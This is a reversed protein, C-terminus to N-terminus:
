PESLSGAVRKPAIALSKSRRYQKATPTSGPCRWPRWRKIKSPAHGIPTGALWRPRLRCRVTMRDDIPVRGRVRAPRAIRLSECTVQAGLSSPQNPGPRRPRGQSTPGLAVGLTGGRRLARPVPRRHVVLCQVPVSRGCRSLHVGDRANCVRVHGVDLAGVVLGIPVSLTRFGGRLPCERVRGGAVTGPGARRLDAAVWPLPRSRRTRRDSAGDWPGARPQAGCRDSAAGAARARGDPPRSVCVGPEDRADTGCGRLRLRLGLERARTRTIRAVVLVAVSGLLTIELYRLAPDLDSGPVALASLQVLPIIAVSLLLARTARSCGHHRRSQPMHPACCRVRHRRDIAGM